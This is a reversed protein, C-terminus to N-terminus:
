DRELVLRRYTLRGDAFSRYMASGEIGAFELAHRQLPGPVSGEIRARLGPTRLQLAHVVNATIDDDEVARLGAATLQRRLASVDNGAQDDGDPTPETRTPRFDTLLLVGGPRLVRHVERLFAPVDPYCHSSEVSLVADFTAAPFPLAEADGAVFQLGARGYRRRCRNIAARALDLGTLSRPAFREFVLASGGGRGCGVELVDKGSLDRVGVAAAYMQRGLDEEGTTRDAEPGDLPAYGYNMTTTAVDHGRLSAVEYFGRWLLKEVQPGIGPAARLLATVM